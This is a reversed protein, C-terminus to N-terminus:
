PKPDERPTPPERPPIEQAAIWERLAEPRFRTLAGRGKGGGLKVHPIRKKWVWSQLTSPAIGLFAAAARLDLLPPDPSPGTPESM